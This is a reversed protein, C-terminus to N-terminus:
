ASDGLFGDFDEVPKPNIINDTIDRIQSLTAGMIDMNDVQNVKSMQNIKVIENMLLFVNSEHM